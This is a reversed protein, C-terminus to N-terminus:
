PGALVVLFTLLAEVDVVAVAVALPKMLLVKVLKTSMVVVEVVAVAVAASLQTTLSPFQLPFWYLWAALLVTLALWPVRLLTSVAPDVLVQAVLVAWVL